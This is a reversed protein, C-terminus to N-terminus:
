KPDNGCLGRPIDKVGNDISVSPDISKFAWKALM